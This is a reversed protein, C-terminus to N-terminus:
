VTVGSSTIWVSARPLPSPPSRNMGSAATPRTPWELGRLYGPLLAGLQDLSARRQLPYGAAPRRAGWLFRRGHSNGKSADFLKGGGLSTMTPELVCQAIAATM